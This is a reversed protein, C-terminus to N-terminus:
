KKGQFRSQIAVVKELPLGFAQAVEEPSKGDIQLAFIVETAMDIGEAEGEAKGELRGEAKGELRGKAEGELRGKAQGRKYLTLETEDIEIPMNELTKDFTASLAM